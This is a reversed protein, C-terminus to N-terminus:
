DSFKKSEMLALDKQSKEKELISKIEWLKAFVIDLKRSRADLKFSFVEEKSNFKPWEDLFSNIVDLTENKLSEDSSFFYSAETAFILAFEPRNIGDILLLERAILLREQQSIFGKQPNELALLSQRISTNKSFRDRNEVIQRVHSYKLSKQSELAKEVHRSSSFNHFGTELYNSVCQHNAVQNDCNKLSFVNMVVFFSSLFGLSIPWINLFNRGQDFQNLKERRLSLGLFSGVLLPLPIFTAHFDVLGHILIMIAAIFFCKEDNEKLRKFIKLMSVIFIFLLAIGFLGGEAWARFLWSHPDNASYEIKSQFFPYYFKFNGWGVGTLFNDKGMELAGKFYAIRSQFSFDNIINNYIKPVLFIFIFILFLKAKEISSFFRAIINKSNSDNFLFVSFVFSLFCVAIGAKSGTLFICYCIFFLCFYNKLLKTKEKQNFIKLLWFPISTGLLIASQNHWNFPFTYIPYNNIKFSIFGVISIILCFYPWFNFIKKDFKVVKGLTMSVWWILAIKLVYFFDDHFFALSLILLSSLSYFFSNKFVFFGKLFVFGSLFLGVFAVISTDFDQSPGFYQISFIYFVLFVFFFLHGSLTRV